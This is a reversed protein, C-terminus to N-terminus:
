ELEKIEPADIEALIANAEDVGGFSTIFQIAEEKGIEHVSSGEGQWMSRNLLFFRKSKPTMFLSTIRTCNNQNLIGDAALFRASDTNLYGEVKGDENYIQYKAM